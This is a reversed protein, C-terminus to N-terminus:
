AEEDLHGTGAPRRPAASGRPDTAAADAARGTGAPEAGGEAPGRRGGRAGPPAPQAPHATHRAVFDDIRRATQEPAWPQAPFTLSSGCAPCRVTAWWQDNGPGRTVLGAAVARETAGAVRADFAAGSEDPRPENRRPEVSRQEDPAAGPDRENGRSPQTV